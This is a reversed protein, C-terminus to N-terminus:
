SKEGFYQGINKDIEPCTQLLAIKTFILVKFEICIMNKTDMFLNLKINYRQLYIQMGERKKYEVRERKVNKNTERKYTIRKESGFSFSKKSLIRSSFQM